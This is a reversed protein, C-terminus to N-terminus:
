YTLIVAFIRATKDSRNAVAHAEGDPCIASDGAELTVAKGNDDYEVTGEIVYFIEEENNHPHSGISCGPELTLVGVMRSHGKFEDKNLVNTVLVQGDGDRMHVRTEVAMDKARKIM